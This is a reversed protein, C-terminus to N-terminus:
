PTTLMQSDVFAPTFHVGIEPLRSSCIEPTPFPGATFQSATAVILSPVVTNTTAVDVPINKVGCVFPIDVTQVCAAGSAIPLTGQSM